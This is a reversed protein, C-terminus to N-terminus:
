VWATTLGILRARVKGEVFQFFRLRNQGLATTAKSVRDLTPLRRSYIQSKRHDDSQKATLKMVILFWDRRTILLGSENM